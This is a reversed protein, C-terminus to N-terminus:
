PFYRYIEKRHLVREFSVTDSEAKLGVRYSRAKYYGKYGKMQEIKGSESLSKLKLIEDFVFKEIGRRAEALIRALDSLFRKQYTVKM